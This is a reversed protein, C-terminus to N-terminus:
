YYPSNMTKKKDVLFGLQSGQPQQPNSRENICGYIGVYNMLRQTTGVHFVHDFYKHDYNM